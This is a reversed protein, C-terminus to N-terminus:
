TESDKATERPERGFAGAVKRREPTSGDPYQWEDRQQDILHSGAKHSAQRNPVETLPEDGVRGAADEPLPSGPDVPPFEHREREEDAPSERNSIGTQKTKDV